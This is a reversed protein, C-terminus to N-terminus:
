VRNRVSARCRNRKKIFVISESLLLISIFVVFWFLIELKTYERVVYTKYRYVDCQYIGKVLGEKAKCGITINPTTRTYGDSLTM